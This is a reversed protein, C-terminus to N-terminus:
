NNKSFLDLFEAKMRTTLLVITFIYLLLKTFDVKFRVKFRFHICKPSNLQSISCRNKLADDSCKEFSIIVERSEEAGLM